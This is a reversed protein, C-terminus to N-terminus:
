PRGVSCHGYRSWSSIVPWVMRGRGQSAFYLALGVRLVCLVTRGLRFYSAARSLHWPKSPDLFM